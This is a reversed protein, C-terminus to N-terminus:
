CFTDSIKNLMNETNKYFNMRAKTCKIRGGKKNDLRAM